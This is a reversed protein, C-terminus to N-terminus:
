NKLTGYIIHAVGLITFSTSWYSPIILTLLGLFFSIGILIYGNKQKLNLLFLLLVGYFFLFTPALYDILFATSLFYLVGFFSFTIGFYKRVSKKTEVNWLKYNNKKANRKGAFFLAFSSFLFLLFLISFILIEIIQPSMLMMPSDDILFESLILDLLYSGFLFYVGIQISTFGKLSFSVSSKTTINSKTSM